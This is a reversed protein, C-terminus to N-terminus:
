RPRRSSSADHRAEPPREGRPRGGRKRVYGCRRPTLPDSRVSRPSRAPMRAPASIEGPTGIDRRTQRRASIPPALYACRLRVTTAPTRSHASRGGQDHSTALLELIDGREQITDVRTRTGQHELSRGPDALRRDPQGADMLRRAAAVTNQLTSTRLRFGSQGVSREAIEEAIRRTSQVRPHRGREALRELRRQQSGLRGTARDIWPGDRKGDGVGQSTEGGIRGHDDRDVIELPDVSWRGPDEREHKRRKASSRM